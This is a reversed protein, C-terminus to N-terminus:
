PRPGRSLGRSHVSLRGVPAKCSPTEPFWQTPNPLFFVADRVCASTHSTWGFLLSALLDILLGPVLQGIASPIASLCSHSSLALCPLAPCPLALSRWSSGHYAPPARPFILSFSSAVISRRVLLFLLVCDSVEM